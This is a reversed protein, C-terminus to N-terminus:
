AGGKAASGFGEGQGEPGEPGGGRLSDHKLLGSCIHQKGSERTIRLTDLSPFDNRAIDMWVTSIVM